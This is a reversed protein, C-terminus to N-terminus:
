SVGRREKNHTPLPSDPSNFATAPACDGDMRPCCELPAIILTNNADLVARYSTGDPHRWVEARLWLAKDQSPVQDRRVHFFAPDAWADIVVAGSTGLDAYDIRRGWDNWPYQARKRQAISMAVFLDNPPLVVHTPTDSDM